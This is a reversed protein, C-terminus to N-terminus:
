PLSVLEAVLIDTEIRLLQPPPPFFLSNLQPLLFSFLLEELPSIHGTLNRIRIM